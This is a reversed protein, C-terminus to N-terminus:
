DLIYIFSYLSLPLGQAAAILPDAKSHRIHLSITQNHNSHSAYFDSFSMKICSLSMQGFWTNLDVIVGVKMGMTMEMEMIVLGGLLYYWLLYHDSVTKMKLQVVKM